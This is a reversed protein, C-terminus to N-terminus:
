KDGGLMNVCRIDFEGVKGTSKLTIRMTQPYISFKKCYLAWDGGVQTVKLYKDDVSIDIDDIPIDKVVGNERLVVAFNIEEYQRIKDIQPVLEFGDNEGEVFDYGLFAANPYPKAQEGNDAIRNELDDGSHIEDLYLDLYMITPVQNDLDDLLANQYSLLKFPRGGLIFRTNLTFLRMTDQNAQVIIEAHNNPTIIYRSVQASPSTMDYSVVCPVVFTGGTEPDIMRLSNNCRRLTILPAVGEYLSVDDVLWYNNSFKYYRGQEVIHGFDKFFVRIFDRGVKKGTSTLDILNAIMAEVEDYEKSGIAKQELLNQLATTNDWQEIVYSQLMERYENNPNGSIAGSAIGSEFFPLAM